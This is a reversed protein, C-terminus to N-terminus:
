GGAATLASVLQYADPSGWGTVPDWGPGAHWAGNGGSTVDHFVRTRQKSNALGYLLPNAWGLSRHTHARHDQTALAWLAAWCPAGLSTGGAVVWQGQLYILVGTSPDADFAVDPEGRDHSTLQGPGKQWNPRRFDRTYGGGSGSWATESRYTNHRGLLLHTGGVATVDPDSAPYVTGVAHHSQCARDGYDGSAAFVAVGKSAADQFTGHLHLAAWLTSCLISGTGRLSISIVTAHNAIAASVADALHTAYHQFAGVKLVEYVQLRADPALAHAWELDMTTEPGPPLAQTTGAPVYVDPSVRPLGFAADFHALDGPDVGDVEVFAITEGRGRVGHQFLPMFDYATAIQVPAYGPHGRAHAPTTDGGVGAFTLLVALMAIRSVRPWRRRSARADWRSGPTEETM